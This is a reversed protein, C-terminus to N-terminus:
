LNYKMSSLYAECLKKDDSYFLIFDQSIPFNQTNKVENKLKKERRYNRFKNLIIEPINYEVVYSILNEDFHVIKGIKKNLAKFLKTTRQSIKYDEPYLLYNFASNYVDCVVYDGVKPKSEILRRFKAFKGCVISDLLEVYIDYENEFVKKISCQEFIEFKLIM